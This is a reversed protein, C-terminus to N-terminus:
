INIYRMLEDYRGKLDTLHSGEEFYATVEYGHRELGQITPSLDERDLKLTVDIMGSAKQQAIYSSLISTGNSEIIHALQALSYDSEKMHVVVIGGPRNIVALEDFKVVLDSLTICGLYHDENDLVAICTLDTSALRRIVAYIHQGDKVFAKELDADLEGISSGPANSDMIDTESLLGLFVKGDVVPLHSVKFEDMWLLARDADDGPRLPPVVKSILERATM